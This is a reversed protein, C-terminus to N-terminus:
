KHALRGRPVALGPAPRMAGSLIGFKHLYWHGLMRVLTGGDAPALPVGALAQPPKWKPWFGGPTRALTAAKQGLHGAAVGGLWVQGKSGARTDTAPGTTHGCPASHPSPCSLGRLPEGPPPSTKLSRRAHDKCVSRGSLTRCQRRGRPPARRCWKGRSRSDALRARPTTARVGAFAPNPRPLEEALRRCTGRLPFAPATRRGRRFVLAPTDEVPRSAEGARGVSAPPVHWPRRPIRRGELGGRGRGSLLRHPLFSGLSFAV